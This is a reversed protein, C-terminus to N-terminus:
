LYWADGRDSSRSRGNWPASESTADSAQNPIKRKMWLRFKNNGVNLGQYQREEGLVVMSQLNKQGSIKINLILDTLNVSVM